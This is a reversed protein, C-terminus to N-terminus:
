DVEGYIVEQMTVCDIYGRVEPNMLDWVPSLLQGIEQFDKYEEDTIKSDEESAFKEQIEEYRKNLKQYISNHRLNIIEAM